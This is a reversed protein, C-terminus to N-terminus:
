DVSRKKMGHMETVMAVLLIRNVVRAKSRTAICSDSTALAFFAQM